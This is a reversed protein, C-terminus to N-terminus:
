DSGAREWVDAVAQDLVEVFSEAQEVFAGHGGAVDHRTTAAPLGALLELQDKTPVVHDETTIVVAVPVDIERLAPPAQYRRLAAGAAAVEFPDSRQLETAVWRQLATTSDVEAQLRATSRARLRSTLAARLRRPAWRGLAAVVVRRPQHVLRGALSRERYDLATACLVLGAVLDPHRLWVQQAVAGGMSYGVLVVRGLGLAAVVAAVDDGLEAISAGEWRPGDGHARLDFAVVRSREALKAFAAFWGLDATATLGHLLM